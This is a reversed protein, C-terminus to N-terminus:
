LSVIGLCLLISATIGGFTLLEQTGLTTQVFSGLKMSTPYDVSKFTGEFGTSM